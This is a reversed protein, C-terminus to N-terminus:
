LAVDDLLASLMSVLVSPLFPKQLFMTSPQELIADPLRDRTYGSLFLIPLGPRQERLWVAIEAGSAGPLVVDCLAVDVSALQGHLAAAEIGDAASLVTYGESQLLVEILRRVSEEDEVVLATKHLRHLPQHEPEPAPQETIPDSTAPLLITFTSGEGPVSHVQIRGGSQEIIGLCTSLGLGSGRGVEKTTFFPEFIRQLVERPMGEGSDSVELCLYKGAPLLPPTLDEDLQIASVAMRLWGGQPMADRANVALNVLVQTIQVPDVKVLPLNQECDIFLTIEEGLIRNLMSRTQEVIERLQVVQANIVTKRAFTLLQSNIEAARSAADDAEQLLKRNSPTQSSTNVMSISGRIVTLLNNFDHAVGGALQGLAELRQSHQLQAELQKRESIDLFMTLMASEGDIDSAVGTVLIHREIGERSLVRIEMLALPEGRLAQQVREQVLPIDDPHVYSLLSTGIIDRGKHYGIIRAGQDNCFRVLGRQHLLIGMPIHEVLKRNREESEKLAQEALRRSTIDFVVGSMREPGGPGYTVSGVGRLWRIEDGHVIRHEITYVGEQLGLQVARRVQALDAPHVLREYRSLTPHFAGQEVGFMPFVAPSWEICGTAVDWSWLGMGAQELISTLKREFLDGTGQAQRGRELSDIRQRLCANERRLADVTTDSM